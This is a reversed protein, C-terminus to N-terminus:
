HLLILLVGHPLYYTGAAQTLSIIFLLQGTMNIAQCSNAPNACLRTLLASVYRQPTVFSTLPSAVMVWRTTLVVLSTATLSRRWVTDIEQALTIAYEYVVLAVIAAHALNHSPCFDRSISLYRM